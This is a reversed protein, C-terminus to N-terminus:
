RGVSVEIGDCVDPDASPEWLEGCLRVVISGGLISAVVIRLELDALVRAEQLVRVAGCAAQRGELFRLGEFM